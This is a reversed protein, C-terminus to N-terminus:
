PRLAAWGFLLFGAILLLGGLPTIAGLFRPGGLALAGVTGSFVLTGALLCWGAPDFGRTPSQRAALGLSLIGLAGYMLYRSATEWLSLAHPDLRVALAHAGFAGAAVALAAGFAGLAIWPM